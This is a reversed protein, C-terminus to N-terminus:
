HGCGASFVKRIGLRGTRDRIGTVGRFKYLLMPIKVNVTLQLDLAIM